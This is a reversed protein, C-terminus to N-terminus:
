VARGGPGPWQYFYPEYFLEKFYKESLRPIFNFYESIHRRTLQYTPVSIGPLKSSRDERYGLKASIEWVQVTFCARFNCANELLPAVRTYGYISRRTM